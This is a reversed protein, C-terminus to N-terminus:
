DRVKCDWNPCTLNARTKAINLIYGELCKQHYLCGCTAMTFENIPEDPHITFKQKCLICPKMKPIRIGTSRIMSDTGLLNLALTIIQSKDMSRTESRTIFFHGIDM